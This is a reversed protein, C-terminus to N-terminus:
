RSHKLNTNPYAWRSLSTSPSGSGYGSTLEHFHQRERDKGTNLEAIAALIQNRADRQTVGLDELDGDNLTLFAEMDVEQDEFMSSYKELSLKKLIDAIEEDEASALPMRGLSAYSDCIEHGNIYGYPMSSRIPIGTPLPHLRGPASSSTRVSVLTPSPSHSSKSPKQHLPTVSTFLPTVDVPAPNSAKLTRSGSNNSVSSHFSATSYSSEPSGSFNHGESYAKRNARRRPRYVAYGSVSSINDLSGEFYNSLESSLSGDPISQGNVYLCPVQPANSEDDDSEHERQVRTLEFAPAPMSPPVVPSIVDDPLRTMPSGLALTKPRKVDSGGAKLAFDVVTALSRAVSTDSGHSSSLSNKTERTEKTTSLEAINSPTNSYNNGMEMRSSGVGSSFDSNLTQLRTSSPPRLTRVLTMNRLRSSMKSWWVKLGTKGPDVGEYKVLDRVRVEGSGNDMKTKSFSNLSGNSKSSTSTTMQMSVSALQRLIDTDGIISAMDFATSGDKAQINVNAGSEILLKVLLRHGYYTAQMLATWGSIKDQADINAGRDLLLQAVNHHGGMCAFILPTAGDDDSANIDNQNVELLNKINQMDGNKAAEIISPRFPKQNQGRSQPKITTRTELYAEVDTRHRLSAVELATQDLINFANVDAGNECLLQVLGIHGNLAAVMLPSWGTVGDKYSVGVGKELLLEVVAEQGHQAASMLSSLCTEVLYSKQAVANADMLLKVVQTHGSRSACDLATAGFDNPAFIDAKHQILIGVVLIHGYLAALMLPTWGYGNRADLCAGKSLLLRVVTEHGNASATHLANVGEEDTSDVHVGQDIFSAVLSVNGHEAALLLKRVNEM